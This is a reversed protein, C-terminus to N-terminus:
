KTSITLLRDMAAATTDWSTSKLINEFDKIRSTKDAALLRDIEESFEEANRVIPICHSYDRVVDKIGTSIIPIGAAM